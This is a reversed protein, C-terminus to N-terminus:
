RGARELLHAEVAAIAAPIGAPNTGGGQALEDKGGGRGEIFPAAVQLLSTATIGLLIAQESAGVIVSVKGQATCAGFVVVPIDHRARARAKTLLERLDNASTGDPATFAWLRVTGIDQGEGIIGDLNTTLQATRVRALDREATKLATITREVRDVLDDAPAKVLESLRTVLLHERALFQYADSGVLAEVRRVGAGISGESLFTIVGLQGSRQAHTGGCMERAWVAVWM